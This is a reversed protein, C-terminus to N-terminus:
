TGDPRSCSQIPRLQAAMDSVDPGGHRVISDLLLAEFESHNVSVCIPPAMVPFFTASIETVAWVIQVPREPRRNYLYLWSRIAAEAALHTRVVPSQHHTEAFVQGIVEGKPSPRMWYDFTVRSAGAPALLATLDQSITQNSVVEGEPTVKPTRTCGTCLQLIVLCLLFSVVRGWRHM